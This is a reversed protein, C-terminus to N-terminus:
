NFRRHNSRVPPDIVSRDRFEDMSKQDKKNGILGSFGIDLDAGVCFAKGAGTVVVARVRDDKSFLDYAKEIEILMTETVANYKEPRNLKLVVVKTPSLSSSPVHSISIEKFPVDAYSGPLSISTSM